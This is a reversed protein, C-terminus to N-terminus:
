TTTQKCSVGKAKPIAGTTPIEIINEKRSNLNAQAMSVTKTEQDFVTYAYRLVPDGLLLPTGPIPFSIGFLCVRKWSAVDSGLQARIRKETSIGPADFIDKFFATGPVRITKGKFAFELFDNEYKSAEGCDVFNGITASINKNLVNFHKYIPPLLEVPLRVQPSGSDVLVVTTKSLKLGTINPSSVKNLEVNYDIPSRPFLPDVVMPLAALNDYYKDSDIGGFLITGLNSSGNLYLSFARRNIGGQTVMNDLVTPYTTPKKRLQTM